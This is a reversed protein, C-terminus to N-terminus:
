VKIKRGKGLVNWNAMTQAEPVGFKGARQAVSLGSLQQFIM